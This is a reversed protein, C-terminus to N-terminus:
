SKFPFSDYLRNKVADVEGREALWMGDLIQRESPVKAGDPLCLPRHDDATFVSYYDEFKYDGGMTQDSLVLRRNPIGLSDAAILGHLASSIVVGCSSLQELFEMPPATVDIVRCGRVTQSLETVRPNRVHRYHPVIGVKNRKKGPRAILESCLLGPDGLVARAAPRGTLTQVQQKTLEGRLAHLELRRYFHKPARGPEAPVVYNAVFGSGWVHLRSHSLRQWLKSARGITRLLSHLVSGICILDARDIPTHVPKLNFLDRLLRVNLQDGFNAQTDYYFVRIDKM